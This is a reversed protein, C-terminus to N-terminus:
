GDVDSVRKSIIFKLIESHPNTIIIASKLFPSIIKDEKVSELAQKVDAVKGCIIMTVLKGGLTKESNLYTISSTKLMNDLAEVANVFGKVEIAGIAEITM